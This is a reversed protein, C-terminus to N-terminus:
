AFATPTPATTTNVPPNAPTANAGIMADFGDEISGMSDRIDTMVSMFKDFPRSEVVEFDAVTIEAGQSPSPLALQAM